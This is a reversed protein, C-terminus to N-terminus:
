RSTCRAIVMASRQGPQASGRVTLALPVLQVRITSGDQAAIGQTAPAAARRQARTAVRVVPEATTPDASPAAARPVAARPPAVMAATASAGVSTMEALNAAKAPLRDSAFGRTVPAASRPSQTMGPPVETRIALNCHVASRGEEPVPLAGLVLPLTPCARRRVVPLRLFSPHARWPPACHRAFRM